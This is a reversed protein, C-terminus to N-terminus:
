ETKQQNMRRTIGDLCVSCCKNMDDTIKLENKIQDKVKEPIKMWNKPFPHLRKVKWVETTCTPVPCSSRNWFVDTPKRSTNDVAVVYDFKSSKVIETFTNELTTALHCTGKFKQIDEESPVSSFLSHHIMLWLDIVASFNLENCDENQFLPLGKNEMRILYDYEANYLAMMYRSKNLLCVPIMSQDSVNHVDTMNLRRKHKWLSVAIAQKCIQNVQNDTFETEINLELTDLEDQYLEKYDDIDEELRWENQQSMIKFLSSNEANNWIMNKASPLMIVDAPGYFLQHSGINANGYHIQSGCECPCEGAPKELSNVDMLYNTPHYILQSLLHNTMVIIVEIESLRIDKLKQLSREHIEKNKYFIELATCAPIVDKDIIEGNAYQQLTEYGKRYVNSSYNGIGKIEVKVDCQDGLEKEDNLSYYPFYWISSNSSFPEGLQNNVKRRLFTLPAADAVVAYLNYEHPNNKDVYHRIEEKLCDNKGENNNVSLKQQSRYKSIQSFNRQFLKAIRVFRNFRFIQDHM